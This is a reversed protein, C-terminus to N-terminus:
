RASLARLVTLGIERPARVMRRETFRLTRFGEVLLDADRVHDREAVGRLFHHPGDIEVILGEDWWVFDAEYGRVTVNCAPTPIGHRACLRLFRRELESRLLPEDTWSAIAIRLRRTGRGGRHRAIVGEVDALDFVGLEEAREVARALERGRVAAALDLLTRAPTTVPIADAVCTEERALTPHRHVVLGPAPKRGGPRTVMVEILRERGRRLGHLAAASRGSLVAGEGCALVAALWRGHQSVLPHGVAYVGAHLRHLSGSRSRRDIASDSFGLSRLQDRNVVGHQRAALEALSRVVNSSRM